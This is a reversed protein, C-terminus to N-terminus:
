AVVALIRKGRWSADKALELSTEREVYTVGGESTYYSAKRHTTPPEAGPMISPRHHVLSIELQALRGAARGSESDRTSSRRRGRGVSTTGAARQRCRRAPLAVSRTPSGSSLAWCRLRAPMSRGPPQEPAVPYTAPHPMRNVAPAPLRATPTAWRDFDMEFILVAAGARSGAIDLEDARGPARKGGARHVPWRYGLRTLGRGPCRQGQVARVM